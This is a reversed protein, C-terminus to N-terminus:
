RDGLEMVELSTSLWRIYSNLLARLAAVSSAEIDLVLFTGERRISVKAVGPKATKAEPLLALYLTEAKKEDDLDVKLQSTAIM